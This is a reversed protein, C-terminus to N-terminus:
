FGFSKGMEWERVERKKFKNAVVEKLLAASGTKKGAKSVPLPSAPLEFLRSVMPSPTRTLWDRPKSRESTCIETSDDTGDAFLTTAHDKDTSAAGNRSGTPLLKKRPPISISRGTGNGKSKSSLLSCPPLVYPEIQQSGSRSLASQLDNGSEVEPGDNRITYKFTVYPEDKPDLLAYTYARQREGKRVRGLNAFSLYINVSSDRVRLSPVVTSM